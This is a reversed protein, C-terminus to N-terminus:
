IPVSRNYYSDSDMIDRFLGASLPFRYPMVCFYFPSIQAFCVLSLLFYSILLLFYTKPYWVTCFHALLDFIGTMDTVTDGHLIISCRVDQEMTYEALLKLIGTMDTVTDGWFLLVGWMGAFHGEAM